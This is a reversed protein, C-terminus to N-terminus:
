GNKSTVGNCTYEGNPAATFIPGPAPVPLNDPPNLVVTSTGNPTLSNECNVVANGNDKASGGVWLDFWIGYCGNSGGGFSPGSPLCGDELVFYKQLFNVYIRTGIPVLTLDAPETAFTTPDCYTGSGSAVDHVTPYSSAPYEIQNSPPSNDPWGYFTITASVDKTAGTVSSPTCSVAVGTATATPAATPANTPTKTPATTPAKTPAKTPVATPTPTAKASKTPAPTPALTPLMTPAATAPQSPVATPTATPPTSTPPMTPTPTPTSAVTTPTASAAATPTPTPSAAAASSAPSATGQPSSTAGPAIGWGSGSGNCGAFLIALSLAISLRKM